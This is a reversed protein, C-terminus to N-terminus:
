EIWIYQTIHSETMFIINKNWSRQFQVSDGLPSCPLCACGNGFTAEDKEMKLKRWTAKM